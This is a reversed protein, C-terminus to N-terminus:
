SRWKKRLYGGPNATLFYKEGGLVREFDHCEGLFEALAESPGPGHEPCVPHGNVNTDEVILFHGPSVLPAYLRLEELVHVKTHDSDLVVLCTGTGKAAKVREVTATATSSGQFYGLRAHTPRNPLPVPDISLVSGHGILQCITAFFYATGGLHTGCEVILDPRTEWVIEQYTILDTPYKITPVGLWFTRQWVRSDYYDRHFADLHHRNM